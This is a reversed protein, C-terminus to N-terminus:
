GYGLHVIDREQQVEYSTYKIKLIPHEYLTDYDIFLKETSNEDSFLRGHLHALLLDM